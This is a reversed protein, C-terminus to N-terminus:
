WLKPKEMLSVIKFLLQLGTTNEITESYLSYFKNNPRLDQSNFRYVIITTTNNPNAIVKIFWNKFRLSLDQTKIKTTNLYDWVAVLEGNIKTYGSM